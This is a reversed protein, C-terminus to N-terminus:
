NEKPDLTESYILPLVRDSQSSGIRGQLVCQQTSYVQRVLLESCCEAQPHARLQAM